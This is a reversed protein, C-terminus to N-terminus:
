LLLYKLDEVTYVDPLQYGDIFFTPTYSIDMTKCWLEMAEIKYSQNLSEENVPYKMAFNSYDKKDSLYWDDLARKILSEDNMQEIALFHRVVKNSDHDLNNSVTFIIKVKLNRNEALLKEIIPHALGCPGCFPNCVKIVTHKAAHNGLDIGLGTYPSTIVKQKKLLAQFIESNFKIRLYKRKINKHEQFRLIYPKIGYWTFIPLLYLIIVNVTFRPELRDMTNLFGSTIANFCGILLLAQVILCLLCWQKAVKWQYYISYATYPLVLINLWSLFSLSNKFGFESFLLILIGGSFYFFGVESWSLGKFVKSGKGTLIATCNGKIIGTCVKHLLPNNKDIEHWILFLSTTFGILLIVYQLYIGIINYRLHEDIVTVKQHLLLFSFTILAVWTFIPILSKVILKKRTIEYNSEGSNQNVEAILYVGGWSKLFETRNLVSVKDYNKQLVNIAENNIFTVIALPAKTNNTYAIFPTPLDDIKNTDIKGAANPINWSNFADSICLISPWDPHNQLTENVSANNVKM